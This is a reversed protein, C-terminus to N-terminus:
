GRRVPRVYGSESNTREDKTLIKPTPPPTHDDISVLGKAGEVVELDDYVAEAEMADLESDTPARMVFYGLILAVMVLALFLLADTGTRKFWASWDELTYDSLSPPALEEPLVSVTETMTVCQNLSDCVEIKIDRKGPTMWIMKVKAVQGNVPDKWDDDPINNQNTDNALDLEWRVSVETAM